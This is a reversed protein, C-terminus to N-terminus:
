LLGIGVSYAPDLGGLAVVALALGILVVNKLFNVMEHEYQEPDDENWFDHMVPTTVVLFVFLLAAAVVPYVWLAVGLGGLVLQVGTVAVLVNAAPVGNAAAYEVMNDWERFHYVGFYALPLGVLLRALLFLEDGYLVDSVM